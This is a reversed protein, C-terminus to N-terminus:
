QGRREWQERAIAYALDGAERVEIRGSADESMGVRELVARSPANAGLEEAAAQVSPDASLRLIVPVYGPAFRRLTLRDTHIPLPM